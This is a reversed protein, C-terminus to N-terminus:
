RAAEGRADRRISAIDAQADCRIGARVLFEIAHLWRLVAERSGTELLRRLATGDPIDSSDRTDLAMAVSKLMVQLELLDAGNAASSRALCAAIEESRNLNLAVYGRALWPSAERDPDDIEHGIRSAEAFSNCAADWKGLFGEALGLNELAVSEIFPEEIKRAEVLAAAASTRADEPKGMLFQLNARNVNTLVLGYEYGLRECIERARGYTEEARCLPYRKEEIIGCNILVLCEDFLNGTRAYTKRVATFRAHAEDLRGMQWLVLGANNAAQHAVEPIPHLTAAREAIDDFVALTEEARGSHMWAIARTNQVMMNHADDDIPPLQGLWEEVKAYNARHTEIFALQLHATYLWRINNEALAIERLELLAKAAKDLNGAQKWTEGLDELLVALQGRALPCSAAEDRVLVIANQLLELAQDLAGLNAARRAARRQHKCAKKRNGAAQWHLALDWAVDDLRDSFHEELAQALYAHLEQRKEEPMMQYAVDRLMSPAFRFGEDGGFHTDCLMHLAKLAALQLQLEEHRGELVRIVKNSFRRGLLSSSQLVSRRQAQLRDVRAQLIDLLSDPVRPEKFADQSDRLEKATEVLYLPVGELEELLHRRAIPHLSQADLIQGIVALREGELLAELLISEWPSDVSLNDVYQIDTSSFPDDRQALIIGVGPEARERLGEIIEWSLEDIWHTDDVVVLRPLGSRRGGHALLRVLSSVVGDHVMQAPCSRLAAICSPIGLVYGLYNAGADDPSDLLGRLAAHKDERSADSPLRALREILRTLVGLLTHRDGPDCCEWVVECGSLDDLVVSLLASKGMGAEGNIRLAFTGGTRLGAIRDALLQRQATRGVFELSVDRRRAEFGLYRLVMWTQVEEGYNAPEFAPGKALEFAARVQNALDDSILIDWTNAKAELRSALNVASGFVDPRLRGGENTLGVQVLGYAAGARLALKHGAFTGKRRVEENIALLALLASESDREFAWPAGFAAYTADGLTQIVFGSHREVHRTCVETFWIRLDRLEAGTVERTIRTYGRIDVFFVTAMRRGQETELALSNLRESWSAPVALNQEEFQARFAALLQDTEIPAKAEELSDRAGDDRAWEASKDLVDGSFVMECAPCFAPIPRALKEGCVPCEVM